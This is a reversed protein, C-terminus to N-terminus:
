SNFDFVKTIDVGNDSMLSIFPVIAIYGLIIISKIWWVYPLYLTPFLIMCLMSIYYIGEYIITHKNSFERIKIFNNTPKNNYKYDYEYASSIDSDVDFLYYLLTIVGVIVVMLFSNAFSTAFAGLVCLFFTSIYYYVKYERKHNRYDSYKDYELRLYVIRKGVFSLMLYYIIAIVAWIIAEKLSYTALALIFSLICTIHATQTRFENIWWGVVDHLMEKSKNSRHMNNSVRGEM